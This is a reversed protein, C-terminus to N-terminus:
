TGTSRALEFGIGLTQVSEDYDILSEGFGNFYKVYGRVRRGMPFSWRLEAAGKNDSRLNNRLMLSVNHAGKEFGGTLEFHGLYFELDPNDDEERDEKIRYWPKFALYYDNKEFVFNAYIRNWSRSLPESRGNSQHNVALQNAVNQMGFLTWDNLWTMILEPEHNTERFPASDDSNYAQWFSRNTYAFSMFSAKGLFGRWVPVQVSLQFQIEISDLDILGDPDYDALGGKNPSPNYTIPLLYNTKHSALTFPNEAADRIAQARQSIRPGDSSEIAEPTTAFIPTQEQYEDGRLVRLECRIRMEELTINAPATVLQERLCNEQRIAESQGSDDLQWLAIVGGEAPEATQEDEPTLTNGQTVERAELPTEQAKVAIAFPLCLLPWWRRIRLRPTLYRSFPM